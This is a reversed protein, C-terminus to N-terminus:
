IYLTHIQFLLVHLFLMLIIIIETEYIILFFQKTMVEYCGIAEKYQCLEYLSVGLDNYFEESSADAEIARRLIIFNM